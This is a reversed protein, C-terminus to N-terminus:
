FPPDKPDPPGAWPDDTVPSPAASTRTPSKRRLCDVTLAAVHTKTDKSEGEGVTFQALKGTVVMEDGQGYNQEHLREALDGWAQVLVWLTAVEEQRTQPNYRPEGHAITVQWKPVQSPGVFEFKPDRALRGTFPGVVIM